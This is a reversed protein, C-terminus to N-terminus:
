LILVQRHGQQDCFLALRYHGIATQDGQVSRFGTQHLLSTCSQQNKGSDQLVDSTKTRSLYLWTIGLPPHFSPADSFHQKMNWVGLM